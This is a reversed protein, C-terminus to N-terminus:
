NLVSSNSTGGAPVLWSGYHLLSCLSVSGLDPAGGGWASGLAQWVGPGLSAMGRCAKSRRKLRGLLDEWGQKLQWLMTLLPFSILMLPTAPTTQALGPMSLVVSLSKSKMRFAIPFVPLSSAMCQWCWIQKLSSDSQLYTSFPHCLPWVPDQSLM